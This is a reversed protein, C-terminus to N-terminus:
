LREPSPEGCGTPVTINDQNQLFYGGLHLHSPAGAHGHSPFSSGQCPLLLLPSVYPAQPRPLFWAMHAACLLGSGRGRM